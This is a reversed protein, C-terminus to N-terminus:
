PLFAQLCRPQRRMALVCCIVLRLPLLRHLDSRDSLRQFCVLMLPKARIALLSLVVLMGSRGNFAVGLVPSGFVCLSVGLAECAFLAGVSPLLASLLAFAALVGWSIPNSWADPAVVSNLTLFGLVASSAAAWIRSFVSKMRPTPRWPERPEEPM